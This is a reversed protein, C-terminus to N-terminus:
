GDTRGPKQANYSGAKTYTHTTTPIWSVWAEDGFNITRGAIASNGGQSASSDINVVLPATGSTPTVNLVPVPAVAATM